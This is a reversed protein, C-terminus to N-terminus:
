HNKKKNGVKTLGVKVTGGTVECLKLMSNKRVQIHVTYVTDICKQVTCM